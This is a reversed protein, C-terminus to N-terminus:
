PEQSGPPVAARAPLERVHTISIARVGSRTLVEGVAEVRKGAFPMLRPRQDADPADNSVPFYFEGEDTQIVLPSGAELCMIACNVDFERATAGLNHVPCYLDRVVGRITTVHSRNPVEPPTAQVARAGQATLAILLAATCLPARMSHPHFATMM